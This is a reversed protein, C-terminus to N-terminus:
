EARKRESAVVKKREEELRASVADDIAEEREALVKERERAEDLRKKLDEQKKILEGELERRLQDRISETLVDCVECNERCNPCAILQEPM